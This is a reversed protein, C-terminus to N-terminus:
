VATSKSPIPWQRKNTFFEMTGMETRQKGEEYKDSKRAYCVGPKTELSSFPTQEWGYHGFINRRGGTRRSILFLAYSNIDNFHCHLITNLFLPNFLSLERWLSCSMVSEVMYSVGFIKLIDKRGQVGKEGKTIKTMTLSILFCAPRQTKLRYRPVEDHPQEPAIM